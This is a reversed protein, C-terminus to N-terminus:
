IYDHRRRQGRVAAHGQGARCLRHELVPGPTNRPRARGRVCRADRPGDRRCQRRVVVQHQRRAGQRGAAARLAAHPPLLRAGLARGRAAAGGEGQGNRSVGPAPPGNR